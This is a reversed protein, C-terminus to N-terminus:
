KEMTKQLRKGPRTAQRWVSDVRFETSSASRRLGPRDAAALQSWKQEVSTEMTNDRTINWIYPTTAYLHKGYMYLIMYYLIIYHLTIYYLLLIIYINLIICSLIHLIIKYIYYLIM